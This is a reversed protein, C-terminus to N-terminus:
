RNILSAFVDKYASLALDPLASAATVPVWLLESHETGLNIPDGEWIEVTFLHYTVRHNAGGPAEHLRTLFSPSKASVGIEELLERPLAQQITEGKEVHGGPFSWTNPHNRRAASRRAMLVKDERLLLGNVVDIM